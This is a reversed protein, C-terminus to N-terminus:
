NTCNVYEKNLIAVKRIDTSRLELKPHQDVISGNKDGLWSHGLIICDPQNPLKRLIDNISDDLRYGPFGPGYKIIESQRTLESIVDQQYTAPGYRAM